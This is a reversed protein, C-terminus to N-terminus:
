EATKNKCTRDAIANNMAKRKSPTIKMRIREARLMSCARNKVRANLRRQTIETTQPM